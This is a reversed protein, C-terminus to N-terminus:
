SRIRARDLADIQTQLRVTMLDLTPSESLTDTLSETVIEMESAHRHMWLDLERSFEGILDVLWRQDNTSEGSIGRSTEQIEESLHVISASIDRINQVWIKTDRYDINMDSLVSSYLNMLRTRREWISPKAFLFVLMLVCVFIIFFYIM